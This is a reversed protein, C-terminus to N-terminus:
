VQSTFPKKGRYVADDRQSGLSSSRQKDLNESASGSSSYKKSPGSSASRVRNDGGLKVSGKRQLAGSSTVHDISMKRTPAGTDISGSRRQAPTL